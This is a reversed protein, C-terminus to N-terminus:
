TLPRKCSSDLDSAVWRGRVLIECVIRYIPSLDSDFGTVMKRERVNMLPLRINSAKSTNLLERNKHNSSCESQQNKHDNFLTCISTSQLLM